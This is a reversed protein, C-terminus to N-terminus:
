PFAPQERFARESQACHVSWQPGDLQQRSSSALLVVVLLRARGRQPHLSCLPRSSDVWLVTLASESEGLCAGRTRQGSRRAGGSQLPLTTSRRASPLASVLDPTAGLAGCVNHVAVRQTSQGHAAGFHASRQSGQHYLRRGRVWRVGHATRQWRGFPCRLCGGFVGRLQTAAPGSVPEGMEKWATVSVARTRRRHVAM